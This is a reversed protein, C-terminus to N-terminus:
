ARSTKNIKLVATDILGTPRDSMSGNSLDVTEKVAREIVPRLERM